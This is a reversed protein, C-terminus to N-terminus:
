TIYPPLNALRGVHDRFEKPNARLRALFERTKEQMM